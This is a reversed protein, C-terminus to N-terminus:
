LVNRTPVDILTLEADLDALTEFLDAKKAFGSGTEDSESFCAVKDAKCCDGTNM